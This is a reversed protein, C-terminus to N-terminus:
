HAARNRGNEKAKYLATDALNILSLEVDGKNPIMAAAGLSVTVHDGVQSSEHAIGLAEVATCIKEAIFLAGQQETDPLLVAFEEGGYRAVYDQPRKVSDNITQAVQVLCKDGQAHGYRDNYKKFFDIDIMILSLPSRSRISARWHRNLTEDFGKRNHIETLGDMCLMKELMDTKRKLKLHNYIRAKVVALSFPKRIYDIAGLKLGKEEDRADNMATVFIIPIEKTTENAKLASCVAYGDMEPMMIDLLILDPLFQITRQIATPGDKAVIVQYQEDVADMLLRINEPQDDVILIKNQLPTDNM